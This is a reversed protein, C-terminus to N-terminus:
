QTVVEEQGAEWYGFQIEAEWFDKDEQELRGACWYQHWSQGIGVAVEGRLGRAGARQGNRPWRADLVMVAGFAGVLARQVALVPCGLLASLLM